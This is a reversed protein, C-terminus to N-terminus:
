RSEREPPATPELTLHQWKDHDFYIGWHWLQFKRDPVTLPRAIRFGISESVAGELSRGCNDQPLNYPDGRDHWYREPDTRAAVTFAAPQQSRDSDYSGGKAVGWGDCYQQGADKFEKWIKAADQSLHKSAPWVIPDPQRPRLRTEPVAYGDAVWEEVNGIMDHIGWANPKKSGVVALKAVRTNLGTVAYTDIEDVNWGWPYAGTGRRRGSAADKSDALCAFEWEAETPLRYFHGTLISLWHCYRKAAWQKMGFAPHNGLQDHEDGLGYANNAYPWGGDRSLLKQDLDIVARAKEQAPSTPKDPSGWESAWERFEQFTCEYKGIWFPSVTAEDGRWKLPGLLAPEYECRRFAGGDVGVMAISNRVTKQEYDPLKETALLRGCPIVFCVVFFTMCRWMGRSGRNGHHVM